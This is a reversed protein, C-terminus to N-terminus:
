AVAVDNSEASHSQDCMQSRAMRFPTCGPCHFDSFTSVRIVNNDHATRVHIGSVLKDAVRSIRLDRTIVFPRKTNECAERTINEQARVSGIVIHVVFELLKSRTVAVREYIRITISDINRLTLMCEPGLKRRLLLCVPSSRHRVAGEDRIAM